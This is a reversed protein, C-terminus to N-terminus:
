EGSPSVPVVCRFGLNRASMAPKVSWRSACRGNRQSVNYSGGRLVRDADAQVDERGDMADYPYAQYLSSTWEAVNGAMNLVGYPSAGTLYSEAPATDNPWGDDVGPNKWPDPCDRDCFHLRTGDPANGWPFIRKDTGRAAKEWEAETPLRRGAWRCYTDAKHWDVRIVPYADFEPNGYYSDRTYSNTESPPGCVGADVCRRYQANTVETWDVWFADLYVEHQPSEEPKGPECDPLYSACVVLAADIEEDSSGMWFIGGPVYVMVSDDKEWIRTAGAEITATPMVPQPTHTATGVTIGALSAAPTAEFTDGGPGRLLLVTGVVIAVVAGLGLAILGWAWGPISRKSRSRPPATTSHAAHASAPPGPPGHVPSPQRQPVRTPRVPPSPPMPQAVQEAELWKGCHGCARANDSVQKGCHSCYRM